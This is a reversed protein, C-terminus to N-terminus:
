QMCELQCATGTMLQRKTYATSVLTNAYPAGPCTLQGVHETAM